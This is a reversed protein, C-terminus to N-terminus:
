LFVTTMMPEVSELVSAERKVVVVGFRKERSLRVIM